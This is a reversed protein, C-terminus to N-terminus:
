SLDISYFYRSSSTNVFWVIYGNTYVPQCDSALNIGSISKVDTLKNGNEDVIVYKLGNDTVDYSSYYKFEEWLVAFKNDPLKVLYPTSALMNRNVYDTLKIQKVDETDKNDKASVLLIVDREDRDLGSMTYSTYETVKSHDISNIAVLYNNDSVEFGGLTVGTCNAGIAGPITFLELEDYKDWRDGSENRKNLVISRPYADGHDVLVQVGDDYQVRQNFSHSVHNDQYPEVEEKLTMSDTDILFTVQSQHNVGDEAYRLRSTHVTLENGSEAM